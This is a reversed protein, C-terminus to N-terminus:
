CVIVTGDESHSHLSPLLLQGSNELVLEVLSTTLQQPVGKPVRACASDLGLDMIAVPQETSADSIVALAHILFHQLFTSNCIM